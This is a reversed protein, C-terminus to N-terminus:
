RYGPFLYIIPSLSLSVMEVLHSIDEEKRHARRLADRYRAPASISGKPYSQVHERASDVIPDILPEHFAEDVSEEVEEPEEEEEEQVIAQFYILFLSLSLSTFVEEILPLTELPLPPIEDGVPHLRDYDDLMQDVSAIAEASV